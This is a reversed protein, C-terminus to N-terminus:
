SIGYCANNNEARAFLTQNYPTTNNYPAVLENQELLADQYSEYFTIPFVIGNITQMDTAIDNLNFTNIGDQSDLEDCAIPVQYDQLQTVSVELSLQAISFCGTADDIVQAFIIQPNSINQYSSANLPNN